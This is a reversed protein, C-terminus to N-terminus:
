LVVLFSAFLLPVLSCLILPIIVNYKYSFFLYYNNHGYFHGKSTNVAMAIWCVISCHRYFFGDELLHPEQPAALPGFCYFDQVSRTSIGEM